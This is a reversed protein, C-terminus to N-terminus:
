IGFRVPARTEEWVLVFMSVVSFLCLINLLTFGVHLSLYGPVIVLYLLVICFPYCTLTKNVIWHLEKIILHYLM